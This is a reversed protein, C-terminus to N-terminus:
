QVTYRHESRVRLAIRSTVMVHLAACASLLDAVLSRAELVHEFNDLVLLLRRDRLQELLLERASRGESERVDLARAITAAVLRHDRLSALDVFAVGDPYAQVLVSAAAISLRTKGVGGPGFLTLLRVESHLPDLKQTLAGIEVERGILPTPPVPLHPQPAP